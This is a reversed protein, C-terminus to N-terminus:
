KQIRYPKHCGGCNKTVDGFAAKFADAGNAAAKQAATADSALKAGKDEFDKFSEWIKPSATTEGGTESGKPFLKAFAAWSTAITGMAESAKAADFPVEGKAMQSGTKSAGGVAKMLAKRQAITDQAVVSVGTAGVAITALVAVGALVSSKKM